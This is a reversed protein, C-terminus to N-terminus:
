QLYRKQTKIYGFYSEHLIAWVMKLLRKSAGMKKLLRLANISAARERKIRCKTPGIFGIILLGNEVNEQITVPNKKYDLYHGYEHSLTSLTDINNKNCVIIQNTNPDFSGYKKTRRIIICDKKVKKVLAQLLERATM